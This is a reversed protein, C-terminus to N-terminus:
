EPTRTVTARIFWISPQAFSPGTTILFPLPRLLTSLVRFLTSKGAGNPGLFAAVQGRPVSFSVDEIAVFKGYYKSLGIAEIMAGDHEGGTTTEPAPTDVVSTASADSTTNSM